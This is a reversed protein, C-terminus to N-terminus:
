ASVEVMYNKIKTYNTAAQYTALTGAPIYVVLDSPLDNFANTNSVTPPTTPKFTLSAISRCSNFASNRISTVGDPIIVSTLSHCRDFANNSISTVSDPITVSTLSYCYNFAYAGIGTVGDPIIVSVLSYCNSFTYSDISTVGEPITISALSTCSGFAYTGISTVSDPITVSTLSYCNNFTNNSISTVGDPITMSTLSYCHEFAYNDISTVGEPITVSTLSYCSSFASNSINTVGDPITMSTLSTCIYFAQLGISTVSNPITVSALSTCCNFASSGISTVNSGLRIAKVANQYARQGNIQGITGNYLVQSCTSSSDTGIFGLSGSEMHLRITFMEGTDPYTHQISKLESTSTGTLTDHASGDGWDIEVTGDPCCGLYPKNRGIGLQIDIETDGSATAYMQGINLRDYKAVYTKAGELSWNWGQAVLGDHSPNSPIASMVLFEDKTYSEVVKGDYDIFNVDSLSKSESGGGGADAISDLMGELVARNPNSPTTMVYDMVDEKSM